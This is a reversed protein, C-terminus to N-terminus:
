AIEQLVLEFINADVTQGLWDKRPPAGTAELEVEAKRAARDRLLWTLLAYPNRVEREEARDLIEGIVNRCATCNAPCLNKRELNRCYYRHVRYLIKGAELGTEPLEARTLRKNM